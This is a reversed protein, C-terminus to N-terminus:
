YRDNRHRYNTTDAGKASGFMESLEPVRAFMTGEDTPILVFKQAKPWTRTIKVSKFVDFNKHLFVSSMYTM